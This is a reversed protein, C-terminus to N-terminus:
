PILDVEEMTDRSPQRDELGVSFQTLLKEKPIGRSVLYDAMVEGITPRPGIPLHWGGLLVIYEYRPYIQLVKQCITSALIGLQSYGSVQYGHVVLIKAM